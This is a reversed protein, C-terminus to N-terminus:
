YTINETIHQKRREKYVVSQAQRESIEYKISLDMFTHTRNGENFRLMCDFDYIIMYNRLIKPAIIGKEILHRITDKSTPEGFRLCVEKNLLELYEQVIKIDNQKKAM